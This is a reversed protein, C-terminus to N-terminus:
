SHWEDIMKILREIEEDTIVEKYKDCCFNMKCNRNSCKKIKFCKIFYIFRAINWIVCIVFFCFLIISFILGLMM